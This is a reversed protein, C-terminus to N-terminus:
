ADPEKDFVGIDLILGTCELYNSEKPNTIEICPAIRDGCPKQTICIVSM